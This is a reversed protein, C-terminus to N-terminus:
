VEAVRFPKVEISKWVGETIYPENAYWEKFEEESEFQLIM